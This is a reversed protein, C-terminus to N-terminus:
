ASPNVLRGEFVARLADIAARQQRLDGSVADNLGVLITRLLATVEVPDVAGIEGTALGTEVLQAVIDDGARRRRRMARRLEDHRAVDVRASGLFRALSPDRSNMEYAAELVAELQGVFTDGTAIAAGFREDVRQMVDDYVALFMELKSDFYHYIAASTMGGKAAVHKNTTGEWGLEAFSERAVDLIRRRTEASNAAPPRGLKRQVKAAM